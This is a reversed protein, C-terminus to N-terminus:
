DTLLRVLRGAELHETMVWEPIMVIGAGLVACEVLTDGQDATLVGQVAVERIDAGQMFRWTQAGKMRNFTVCAQASRDEPTELQPAGSLYSPAAALTLPNSSIRATRLSSDEMSRALISLDIGEGIINVHRETLVSMVEIRTYEQIFEVIRPAIVLRSLVRSISLTVRGAPTGAETRLQAEAADLGDLLRACNEM